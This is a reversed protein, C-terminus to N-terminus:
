ARPSPRFERCSQWQAPLPNRHGLPITGSVSVASSARLATAAAFYGGSSRREIMGQRGWGMNRGAGGSSAIFATLAAAITMEMISPGLARTANLLDRCHIAEVHQEDTGIVQRVSQTQGALEILRVDLCAEM